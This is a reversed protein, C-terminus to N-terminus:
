MWRWKKWVRERSKSQIKQSICSWTNAWLFFNTKIGAQAVHQTGASYVYAGFCAFNHMTATLCVNTIKIKKRPVVLNLCHMNNPPEKTSFTTSTDTTTSWHKKLEKMNFYPLYHDSKFKLGAHPSLAQFIDHLCLLLSRFQRHYCGSPMHSFVLYLFEM